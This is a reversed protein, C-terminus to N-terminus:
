VDTGTNVTHRLKARDFHNQLDERSRVTYHRAAQTKIVSRIERKGQSLEHLLGLRVVIEHLVRWQENAEKARRRTRRNAQYQRMLEEPNVDESGLFEFAHSLDTAEGDCFAICSLTSDFEAKIYKVLEHFQNAADKPTMATTEDM